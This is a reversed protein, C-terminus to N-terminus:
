NAPNEPLKSFLKKARYYANSIASLHDKRFRYYSDGGREALDRVFRDIAAKADLGYQQRRGEVAEYTYRLGADTWKPPRGRRKPERVNQPSLLGGRLAELNIKKPRGVRAPRNKLTEGALRSQQVLAMNGLVDLALQWQEPTWESAPKGFHEELRREAPTSFRGLLGPPATARALAEIFPDRGLDLPGFLGFFAANPIM